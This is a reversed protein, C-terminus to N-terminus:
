NLGRLRLLGHRPLGFLPQLRPSRMQFVYLIKSEPNPRFRWTGQKSVTTTVTNWFRCRHRMKVLMENCFTTFVFHNLKVLFIQFLWSITAIWNSLFIKSFFHFHLPEIQRSIISLITFISRNLQLRSFHLIDHFIYNNLIVLYNFFDRFYLPEIQCFFDHFHMTLFSVYKPLKWASQPLASITRMPSSCFCPQIISSERTNKEEVAATPYTLNWISKMWGEKLTHILVLVSSKERFFFSLLHLLPITKSNRLVIARDVIWIFANATNGEEGGGKRQLFHSQFLKEFGQFNCLFTEICKWM